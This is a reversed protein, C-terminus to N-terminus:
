YLCEIKKSWPPFGFGFFLQIVARVYPFTKSKGSVGPLLKCKFTEKHARACYINNEKEAAPIVAAVADDDDDRLLTASPVSFLFRNVISTNEHRPPYYTPPSPHSNFNPTDFKTPAAAPTTCVVSASIREANSDTKYTKGDSTFGRPPSPRRAKRKTM